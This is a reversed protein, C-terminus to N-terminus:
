LEWEHAPAGSRQRECYAAMLEYRSRDRAEFAARQWAAGTQGSHIRAEIIDLFESADLGLDSLGQRAQPLLVDALLRRAEIEGVRPWFLRAELGDRAAAYFNARAADFPLGGEGGPSGQALHHALGLYLAANAIMDVLSPGAPLIRHEIRFHPAGSDDFGILPRNWRWIVGNHLRLHRLTEPPDEFAIPLLASYDRLNEEFLELCSVQAYGSGLSVRAPGPVVVAQEFLPIRTEEWLMKGFLFPANGCAALIPGSAAVSANYFRHALRAPTKLHVQFSTTAAELMVDHHESVLHDRGAIDIKLPRGGRRRLVEANLAYYRNLPSINALTLDEERITPLTGIMVLNADLEHAAQNCRRWLAELGSLSRRLADGSLALPESNLELNFRSLEPVALPDNLRELLQQNVPSPFFSHDLIWTEIEFGFAYGDSSFADAEFLARALATEDALRQQFRAADEQTFATAQIEEGM